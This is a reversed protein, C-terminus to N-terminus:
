SAPRCIKAVAGAPVRIPRDFVVDVVAYPMEQPPTVLHLRSAGVVETSLHHKALQAYELKALDM